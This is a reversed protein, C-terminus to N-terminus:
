QSVVILADAFARIYDQASIQDYRNGWRTEFEMIGYYGEGFQGLVQQTRAIKDMAPNSDSGGHGNFIPVVYGNPYERVIAQPNEVQDEDFVYFAFVGPSSYGKEERKSFYMKAMQNITSADVRRQVTHEIDWDLWLNDQLYHDVLESFVSWPDHDGPQVDLMVYYGKRRAETILYDLFGKRPMREGEMVANPNIAIVVDREGNWLDVKKAYGEALFLAHNANV